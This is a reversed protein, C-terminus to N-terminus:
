SLDPLVKLNWSWGPVIESSGFSLSDILSAGIGHREAQESDRLDKVAPSESLESALAFKTAKIHHWLQATNIFRAVQLGIRRHGADTTSRKSSTLPDGFLSKVGTFVFSSSTLLARLISRRNQTEM